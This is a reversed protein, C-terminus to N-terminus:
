GETKGEPQPVLRQIHVYGPSSIPFGNSRTVLAVDAPATADVSVEGEGEFDATKISIRDGDKLQYKDALQPNMMLVQPALRQDLLHSYQLLSGRDYLKTIPVVKLGAAVEEQPEVVVITGLSLAEGKEALSALQIGNGYENEYATGAYDSDSRRVPPWQEEPIALAGFQIAEYGKVKENIKKMVLAPSRSETSLGLQRGLEAAIVYDPKLGEEPILVLGFRQVFREGSTFTGEREMQAQVPFVVDAMKATKTMFMEFVVLFDTEKLAQALVPNDGAPDAAAVIAIDAERLTVKLNRDPRFGMDWGGQLNPKDWVPLLGNNPKGYFGLEVLLKACVRTLLDSGELGLGDSGYIVIANKAQSFAKAAESVGEGKGEIFANITAAEQGYAFRVKHTAYKDLRTERANAVILTAGRDAAQKVRLWWIPAEQHLDCSVVLVVDGKGLGSLNTGKGVGIQAALDGGAMQSYLVAKGNQSQNLQQLNFLDENSLRGGALTVLRVQEKRLKDEVMQYAEEWSVAVLEGDKRALPQTLREEATAFHYGFRGKDCIWIENVKENQRPMVRKIVPKGGSKVERRINYVLNCGVACHTCVSPVRRMEWPRAGFRFDVTTLAGVPCIDTTNGSFISDFGPKSYSRIELSRGRRYFNIVPDDVIQHQFRVCLACQICRERDLMILEGIKVPKPFHNKDEYLYRSVAPGHAVTLDQLACEGGKDCIPCDLPHSTLLFELINNRGKIVKESNTLVEMGETVPITCSTELKGSFAVKLSGDENKLFEGTARDRQPYGVEVLCMRCMGVPEMKPHYCFVPIQTGNMRAADVILTGAPVSVTKQDIKLTVNAAM